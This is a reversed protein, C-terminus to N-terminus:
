QRRAKLVAAVTVPDGGRDLWQVPTQRDGDLELDELPTRMFAQVLAPEWDRPIATAVIDIGPLVPRNLQSAFQWAPYRVEGDYDIAHLYGAERFRKLASPTVHLRALVEDATLAVEGLGELPGSADVALWISPTPGAIPESAIPSVVQEDSVGERELRRAKQLQRSRERFRPGVRLSRTVHKDFGIYGRRRWDLTVHGRFGGNAHSRELRDWERPLRAPVGGTDELLHEFLERFTPGYPHRRRYQAVFIAAALAWEDGTDDGTFLEFTYKWSAPPPHPAGRWWTPFAKNPVKVM